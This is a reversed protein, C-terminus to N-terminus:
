EYSTRAPALNWKLLYKASFFIVSFFINKSTKLNRLDSIQIPERGALLELVETGGGQVAQSWNAESFHFHFYSQWTCVRTYGPGLQVDM